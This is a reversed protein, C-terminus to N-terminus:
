NLKNRNPVYYVETESIISFSKNKNEKEFLSNSKPNAANRSENKAQDNKFKEKVSRLELLKKLKSTLKIEKAVKKLEDINIKNKPLEKPLLSNDITHRRKLLDRKILLNSLKERMLEKNNPSQNTKSEQTSFKNESVENDSEDSYAYWADNDFDDM